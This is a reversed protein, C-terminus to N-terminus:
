LHKNKNDKELQKKLKGNQLILILLEKGMKELISQQTKSNNTQVPQTLASKPTFLYKLLLLFGYIALVFYKIPYYITYKIIQKVINFISGM